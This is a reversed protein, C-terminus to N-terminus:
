PQEALWLDVGLGGQVFVAGERNRDALNSGAQLYIRPRRFGAYEPAPILVAVLGARQRSTEAEFSEVWEHFGGVLALADGPGDWVEWALLSTHAQMGDGDTAQLQDFLRERVVPGRYGSFDHWYFAAAHRAVLRGVKVQLTPQLSLRLALGAEEEGERAEVERDGFLSTPSPFSLTYGLLGFSSLAHAEARLKLIRLPLWEAHLGAEALAPSVSADIGIERYTQDLLLSGPASHTQRLILSSDAVLGTPQSRGRLDFTAFHRAFAPAPEAARATGAGSVLALLLLMSSLLPASRSASM